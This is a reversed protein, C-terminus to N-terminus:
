RREAWTLPGALALPFLLGVAASIVGIIIVSLEPM